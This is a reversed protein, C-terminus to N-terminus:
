RLLSFVKLLSSAQGRDVETVVRCVPCPLPKINGEPPVKALMKAYCNQCACHGCRLIRRVHQGSDDDSFGEFCLPCEAAEGSGDGVTM